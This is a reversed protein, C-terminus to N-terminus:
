PAPVRIERGQGSTRELVALNRDQVNRIQPKRTGSNRETRCTSQLSVDCRKSSWKSIELCRFLTKPHVSSQWSTRFGFWGCCFGCNPQSITPRSTRCPWFPRGLFSWFFDPFPNGPGRPGPASFARFLTSLSLKELKEEPKQSMKSEKEAKTSSKQGQALLGQSGREPNKIESNELSLGKQGRYFALSTGVMQCQEIRKEVFWNARIVGIRTAFWWAMYTFARSLSARTRCSESLNEGAKCRHTWRKADRFRQSKSVASVWARFFLVFGFKQTRINEPPAPTKWM